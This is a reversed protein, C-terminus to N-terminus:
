VNNFQRWLYAYKSNIATHSLGGTFLFWVSYFASSIVAALQVIPSVAVAMM